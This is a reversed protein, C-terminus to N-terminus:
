SHVPRILNEPLTSWPTLQIILDTPPIMYPLFYQGRAIISDAIKLFHQLFGRFFVFEACAINRSWNGAWQGGLWSAWDIAGGDRSSSSEAPLSRWGPKVRDRWRTLKLGFYSFHIDSKVLFTNQGWNVKVWCYKQEYFENRGRSSTTLGVTLKWNGESNYFEILEVRLVNRRLCVFKVMICSGLWVYFLILTNLHPPSRLETPIAVSSRAPRDPFRIGTSPSINRVPRPYWVAEQVIPVSGNGHTSRGPRSTLWGDGM